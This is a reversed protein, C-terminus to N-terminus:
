DMLGRSFDKTADAQSLVWEQLQQRSCRWKGALKFAPLTGDGCMRYATNNAVGLHAAIEAIRLLKPATEDTM